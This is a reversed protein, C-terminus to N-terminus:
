AAVSEYIEVEGLRLNRLISSTVRLWVYDWETAADSSVLERPDNSQDDTDTFSTSGLLTGDSSSSPASGNKARLELAITPQPAGGSAYGQDTTGYCSASWVRRPTSSFNKGVYADTADGRSCSGSTAQLIIGDFAAALGGQDTMNGINSGETRLNGGQEYTVPTGQYQYVDTLSWVGSQPYQRPPDPGIFGGPRRKNQM